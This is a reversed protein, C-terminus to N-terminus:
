QGEAIATNSVKLQSLKRNREREKKEV